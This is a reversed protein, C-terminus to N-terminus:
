RKAIKGQTKRLLRKKEKELEQVFLFDAGVWCLRVFGRVKRQETASLKSLREEETKKKAAAKEAEAEERKERVAEERIDKEIKERTAKLKTRTEPRLSPALGVGGRGGAGKGIGWGGAAAIVDVLQFAAATLPVTAKADSAPPLRLTLILRKKRQSAPLPALPRTRPQDTLSLSRFYPLVTPDSLVKSLSMPGHQKM